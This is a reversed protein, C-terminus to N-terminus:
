DISNKMKVNILDWGMSDALDVANEFTIRYDDIIELDDNMLDLVVDPYNIEDYHNKIKEFVKQAESETNGVMLALLRSVKNEEVNVKNFSLVYESM